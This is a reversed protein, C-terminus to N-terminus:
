QGYVREIYDVADRTLVLQDYELIDYLNLGATRLVKIEPVNRASRELNPNDGEIVILAKGLQLKQRHVLFQKTRTEPLDFHDLVLLLKDRCKLSLASRLAVKRVKKPLEIGYDRPKPGFTVGGGRWVPSARTGARARGTGKQRWPKKGSAKVEIRTKTSATGQRKAALQMRIVLPFLHVRPEVGFVDDRLSIEGTKNANMDLVDLVPM